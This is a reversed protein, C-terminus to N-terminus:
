GEAVVVTAGESVSIVWGGSGAPSSWGEGTEDWGEPVEAEGVVRVPAGAPVVIEFEGAVTVPSEAMAAGLRVTGTGDVQLDTVRFSALDADLDGALSLSWAPGPALTISWGAFTSLGPDPVPELDVTLSGGQSREVAQPLGIDGGTRIPGVEYLFGSSELGIDIDGDIRASLAATSVGSAEPGVLSARASPMVDWGSLHGILFLVLALVVVLPVLGSLKVKGVRRDRVLFAGVAIAAWVPWWAVLDIVVARSLVGSVAGLLILVMLALPILWARPFSARRRARAAHTM